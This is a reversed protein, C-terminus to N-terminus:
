QNEEDEKFTKKVTRPRKGGDTPMLLAILDQLEWAGLTSAYDPPSGKDAHRQSIAELGRGIGGGDRVAAVAGRTSTTSLSLIASLDPHAQIAKVDPAAESSTISGVARM